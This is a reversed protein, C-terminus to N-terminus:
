KIKKLGAMARQVKQIFSAMEESTRQSAYRAQNCTQFLEHVLEITAADAGAPKLEEEVVAETISSAPLDLREGIQEQLLRFISAFFIEPENAEAKKPLESLGRAVSRETQLRRRLRPNNAFNEKRKRYVVAGIWALPAFAQMALFWPQQLLPPAPPRLEGPQAKIHVLDRVAPPPKETESIDSLVTPQPTAATPRVVLALSPSTLTQYSKREPDFFSFAFAPLTKVESNQPVVVQEFTKTGELGLPDASDLKSTPPYTKFERWDSQQPLSLLDLSGRGSIKVKLTIPDGVAVNTPSASFDMSFRGIAGNFNAPKKEMPLPLVQVTQPESALTVQRAQTFQGFFDTPGMLLKLSLTVPGLTLNGARTPTVATKFVVLNYIEGGVRTRSQSPQPISGVTFGDGAPQPLNLDSANQCYLQIEVAMPEGVFLNTKPLILKVFAPLKEEPSAVPQGKVVKLKLPQSALSTGGLNLRLAPITFDGVAGSALEYIYTVSSSRRGNDFRLQSSQTNQVVRLGPITPLVPQADVSADTITLSLNVTEGLGITTRDLSATFSPAGLASGCILWFSLSAFGIRMKRFYIKTLFVNVM